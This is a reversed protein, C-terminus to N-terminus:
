WVFVWARHEERHARIIADITPKNVAIGRLRITSENKADLRLVWFADSGIFDGRVDGPEMDWVGSAWSPLTDKTFVGLDGDVIASADDSFYRAIDGFPMGLDIKEQINALRMEQSPLFVDQLAGAARMRLLPTHLYAEQERVSIGADRLIATDSETFTNDDRESSLTIDGERMLLRLRVDRVCFALALPFAEQYTQVVDLAVFAHATEVVRHYSLPHIGVWVPPLVSWTFPRFVGNGGHFFMAGMQLMVFVGCAVGLM